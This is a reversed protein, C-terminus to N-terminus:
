KYVTKQQHDLIFKYNGSNYIRLYKNKLMIESGSGTETEPLKHKQFKHRDIRGSEGMINNYNVYYFNPNTIGILRMNLNYYVKGTFTGMDCYSILINFDIDKRFASLLRNAGGIISIGLKTCLRSIEWDNNKLRKFTMVEILESDM